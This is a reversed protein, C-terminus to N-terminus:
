HSFPWTCSASRVKLGLQTAMITAVYGGPGAVIHLSLYAILQPLAGADGHVLMAYDASKQKGRLAVGRKGKYGPVQVCKRHV